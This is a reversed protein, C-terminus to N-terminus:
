CSSRGPALAGGVGDDTAFASNAVEPQMCSRSGKSKCCSVLTSIQVLGLPNCRRLIFSGQHFSTWLAALISLSGPFVVPFFISFFLLLGVVNSNSFLDLTEVRHLGEVRLASFSLDTSSSTKDSTRPFCLLGSESSEAYLM